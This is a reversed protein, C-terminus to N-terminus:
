FYKAMAGHAIITVDGFRNTSTGCCATCKECNILHGAEKSAPCSIENKMMPAAKDRVRFVRYGLAKAAAYEEQTDASAMCFKAYDAACTKWQHTYGTGPANGTLDILAEWIEAPVAAPDGYSGIRLKRGGLLGNHTMGYNGRKYCKYVSKPANYVLVYCPREKGNTTTGRHKCNGCISSDEGTKVADWPDIDARIIWTQVMAGTKVNNSKDNLGTVILAIPKGDLQSPGEWAIFGNIKKGTSM